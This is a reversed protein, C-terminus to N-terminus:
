RLTENFTCSSVIETTNEECCIDYIQNSTVHM